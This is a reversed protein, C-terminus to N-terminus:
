EEEPALREQIVAGDPAKYPSVNVLVEIYADGNSSAAGLPLFCVQEGFTVPITQLTTQYQVGQDPISVWIQGQIVLIANGERTLYPTFQVAVIVNAGLLKVGVARGSITIKSISSSNWVEQSDKEVVRATIDLALARNQLSPLVDEFSQAWLAAAGATFFLVSKVMFLKKFRMM